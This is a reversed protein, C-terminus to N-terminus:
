WMCARQAHRSECLVAHDLQLFAEIEFAEALAQPVHVIGERATPGPLLRARQGVRPTGGALPLRVRPIAGAGTLKRCPRQRVSNLFVGRNPATNPPM